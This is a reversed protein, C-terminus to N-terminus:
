ALVTTIIIYTWLVVRYVIVGVPFPQDVLKKYQLIILITHSLKIKRYVVTVISYINKISM